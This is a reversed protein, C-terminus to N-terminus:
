KKINLLEIQDGKITYDLGRTAKLRKLVQEITTKEDLHSTFLDNELEKDKILIRVNFRRELDKVINKLPENLYFLEGSMWANIKEIGNKTSLTIDGAESIFAQESPNLTVKNTANQSTIEVRGKILTVFSAEDKYSKVNFKTGLVRVEMLSTHVTFPNKEDSEVEFYGEGELYIRRNKASFDSPYSLKTGANLWIATGDPLILQARQGAPVEFDAYEVQPSEAGNYYQYLALSGIALMIVAVYRVIQLSVKRVYIKKTKLRFQKFKRQAYFIDGAKEQMRIVSSVNLEDMFEKQWVKDKDLETFLMQKDEESLLNSFYKNLEEEM